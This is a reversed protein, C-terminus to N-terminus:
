RGSAGEQRLAALMAQVRVVTVAVWKHLEVARDEALMCNRDIVTNTKRRRDDYRCACGHPRHTRAAAGCAPASRLCRPSSLPTSGNPPHAPNPTQRSPIPTSPLKEAIV